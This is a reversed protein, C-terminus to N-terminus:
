PGVCDEYSPRGEGDHYLGTPVPDDPLTDKQWGRGRIILCRYRDQQDPDDFVQENFYHNAYGEADETGEIYFRRVGVHGDVYEHNFTWNKGHWGRVAKTPGPNIGPGIWACEDIERRCAWAWRGINEEYNITRAPNPVRSVPRLYPSNSLLDGTYGSGILFVNAAYSNGFHDYSSQETNNMWDPCHAGRPPGDDEPCRYLDLELQTDLWAGAQNWEPDLNDRFGHPYLIDNLPRTPPGFGARTGYKSSIWADPGEAPGEAFGPRGIGSKGGWEYAGIFTPANPAQSFMRPHVPIGLGNPDNEAYVDTASGIAHLRELCVAHKSRQRAADLSPEVIAILLGVTAIVVLLETLTFAARAGFRMMRTWRVEPAM